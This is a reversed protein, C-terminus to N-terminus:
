FSKLLPQFSMNFILFHTILCKATKTNLVFCFLLRKLMMFGLREAMKVYVKWESHIECSWDSNKERKMWVWFEVWEICELMVSPENQCAIRPSTWCWFQKLPKREGSNIKVWTTYKQKLKQSCSTYSFEYSPIEIYGLM